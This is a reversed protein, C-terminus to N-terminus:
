DEKGIARELKELREVLKGVDDQSALNMKKLREEISREIREELSKRSEDAKKLLDDALKKGENESLNAQQQITKALEEVKEKTLCALGVGTLMTKKILEFM